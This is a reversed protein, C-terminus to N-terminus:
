YQPNRRLAILAVIGHMLVNSAPYFMLAHWWVGNTADLTAVILLAYSITWVTWPLWHETEPDKWTTSILPYFQPFTSLNSLFLFVLVWWERSAEDVLASYAFIWVGIYAVTIVIDGIFSWREWPDEPWWDAPWWQTPDKKFAKYWLRLAVIVGGLSCLTPLILLSLTAEGDWELVTLILTGYAFMFWTTPNPDIMDYVVDLWIYIVYGAFLVLGAITGIDFIEIM